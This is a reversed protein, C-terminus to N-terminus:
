GALLAVVVRMALYALVLGIAARYVWASRAARELWTEPRAAVPRGTRFRALDAGMEGADAYRAVPDAALAKEGVARLRRPLDR